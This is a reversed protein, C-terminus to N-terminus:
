DSFVTRLFLMEIIMQIIASSWSCNFIVFINQSSMVLTDMKFRRFYCCCQSKLCCRKIMIQGLAILINKIWIHCKSLIKSNTFSKYKILLYLKLVVDSAKGKLTTGKELENLCFFSFCLGTNM